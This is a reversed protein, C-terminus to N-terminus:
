SPAGTTARVKVREGSRIGADRHKLRHLQVVLEHRDNQEDIAKKRWLSATHQWDFTSQRLEKLQMKLGVAAISVGALALAEAFELTTMGRERLSTPKHIDNCREIWRGTAAHLERM